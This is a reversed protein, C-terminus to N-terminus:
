ILSSPVTSSSSESTAPIVTVISGHTRITPSGTIVGAVHKAASPVILKALAGALKVNM